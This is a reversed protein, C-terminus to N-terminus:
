SAPNPEAAPFKEPAVGAPLELGAGTQGEHKEFGGPAASAGKQPLLTTPNIGVARRDAAKERHGLPTLKGRRPYHVV